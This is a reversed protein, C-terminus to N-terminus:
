GGLHEKLAAFEAPEVDVGLLATWADLYTTGAYQHGHGLPVNNSLAMDAAVQLATVVPFWRMAASVDGGRPAKMWDPPRWLMATEFFVIPDSPHQMYILRLPGWPADGTLHGDRGMFRVLSGDE